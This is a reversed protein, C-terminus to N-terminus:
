EELLKIANKYHNSIKEIEEETTSPNGNTYLSVNEYIMQLVAMKLNNDYTDEFM